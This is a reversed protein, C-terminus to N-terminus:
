EVAVGADAAPAHKAAAAEVQPGAQVQLANVAEAIQNVASFPALSLCNLIATWQSVSLTITIPEQALKENEM